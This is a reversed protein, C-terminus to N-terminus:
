STLDLCSDFRQRENLNEQAWWQSVRLRWRRQVNFTKDVAWSVGKGEVFVVTNRSTDDPDKALEEKLRPVSWEVRQVKRSLISEVIDALQAYTVTDGATYIVRNIIRYNRGDLRHGRIDHCHRCYGLKWATNQAHNLRLYCKSFQKQFLSWYPSKLHTANIPSVRQTDYRGVQQLFLDVWTLRQWDLEQKEFLKAISTRDLASGILWRAV